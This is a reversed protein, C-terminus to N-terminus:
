ELIREILLLGLFAFVFVAVGMVTHFLGTTVGEGYMESALSLSVIRIINTSIAVPGSSLFLIAKKPRTLNSFYTILTGLAILAILSRIGSCPDEVVIYSHMTKIVSGERIAPVGLKNILVTSAQAALIKLNFSLHAIAILPLPIMFALFLVPFLIERLFGKGLSLLILGILVLLLSFGSTFYVRWVASLIHILIGPIFFLWGLNSPIIRLGQLRDRKLWIIFVSILPILFGHSYYTDKAAWRDFMWIFTPVYAIIALIFLIFIKIYRVKAM